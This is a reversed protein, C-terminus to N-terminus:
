NKRKGSKGKPLQVPADDRETLFRDLVTLMAIHRESPLWCQSEIVNESPQTGIRPRLLWFPSPFGEADVEIRAPGTKDVDIGVATGVLERLGPKALSSLQWQANRISVISHSSWSRFDGIYPKGDPTIAESLFYRLYRLTEDCNSTAGAVEVSLHTPDISLKRFAVEVSPEEDEGSDFELPAIGNSFEVGAPTGYFPEVGRISPVGVVGESFYFQQKAAEVFKMNALASLRIQDADFEWTKTSVIVDISLDPSSM